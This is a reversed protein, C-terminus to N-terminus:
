GEGVRDRAIICTPRVRVMLKLQADAYQTFAEVADPGGYRRGIAATTARREDNQETSCM